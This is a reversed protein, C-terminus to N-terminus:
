VKAKWLWWWSLPEKSVDVSYIRVIALKKDGSTSSARRGCSSVNPVRKGELLQWDGGLMM